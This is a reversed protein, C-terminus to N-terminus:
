RSGTHHIANVVHAAHVAEPRDDVLRLGHAKMGIPMASHESQRAHNPVRQGEAAIMDALGDLAHRGM